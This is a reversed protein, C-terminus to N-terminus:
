GAKVILYLLEGHLKSMKSIKSLGFSNENCKLYTMPRMYARQKVPWNIQPNKNHLSYNQSLILLSPIFSSIIALFDTIHCLLEGHLKTMKQTAKIICKSFLLM